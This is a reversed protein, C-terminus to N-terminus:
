RTRHCTNELTLAMEVPNGFAGKAQDALPDGTPGDGLGGTATIDMRGTARGDWFLGGVFLEEVEDYHFVPRFGEYSAEPANRGGFLAPDSGDSVPFLAPSICNEPDAFGASPRHCTM